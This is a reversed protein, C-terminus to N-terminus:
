SATRTTRTSSGQADRRAGGVAARGDGVLDGGRWEWWPARDVQRPPAGREHTFECAGDVSGDQQEEV